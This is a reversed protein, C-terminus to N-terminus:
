QARTNARYADPIEKGNWNMVDPIERGNGTWQASMKRQAELLRPPTLFQTKTIQGKQRRLWDSLLGRNEVVCTSDTTWNGELRRMGWNKLNSLCYTSHTKKLRRWSYFRYIKRCLDHIQASLSLSIRFCPVFDAGNFIPQFYICHIWTFSMFWTFANSFNHFHLTKYEGPLEKVQPHRAITRTQQPHPLLTIGRLVLLRALEVPM